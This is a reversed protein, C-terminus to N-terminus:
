VKALGACPASEIGCEDVGREILFFGDLGWTTGWSNSVLWYPTNASGYLGWGIMKVAHGGALAGSTHVYVGGSYSFFDEYVEFQVEIPGNTMIETQMASPDNPTIAYASAANYITAAGTGGTAKCSTAGKKLLCNGTVGAGSTYPYCADAVIGTSKM